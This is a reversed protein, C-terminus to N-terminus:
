FFRKLYVPTLDNLSKFITIAIKKQLNEHLSNERQDCNIGRLEPSRKFQKAFRKFCTKSASSWVEGCYNCYPMVLSDILLKKTHSTLHPLARQGECNSARKQMREKLM